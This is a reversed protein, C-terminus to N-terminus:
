SVQSADKIGLEAELKEINKMESLIRAEQRKQAELEAQKKHWPIAKPRIPEIEKTIQEVITPKAIDLLTDLLRTNQAREIDLQIKLTECSKCPEFEKGLLFCIFRLM